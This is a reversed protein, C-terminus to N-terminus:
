ADLTAAMLTGAVGSGHSDAAVYFKNLEIAPGPGSAAGTGALMPDAIPGGGLMCYGITAGDQQALLLIREPDALYKDFSPLSLHEAIFADIDSQLTGPPTALGFTRAALEHLDAADAPGAPRTTTAM